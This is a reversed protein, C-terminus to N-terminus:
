ARRAIRGVGELLQDLVIEYHRDSAYRGMEAALEVTHPYLDRPLSRMGATIAAAAASTRPVAFGAWGYNLAIVGSFTAVAEADSLRARRLIAFALEGIRTANLGPNPHQFLSAVAWQHAMLLRRHARAFAKLDERWSRTPTPVEFRGLVRDLLGDVLDDKTAVHRYLAMPAADLEAAVARMTLAEFGQTSAIREAADLIVEPSLSGRPKRSKAM